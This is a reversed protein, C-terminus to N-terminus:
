DFQKGWVNFVHFHLQSHNEDDGSLHDFRYEWNGGLEKTLFQEFKDLFDETGNVKGQAKDHLAERQEETAAPVEPVCTKREKDEWDISVAFVIVDKLIKKFSLEKGNHWDGTLVTAEAYHIKLLETAGEENLGEGETSYLYEVDLLPSHGIYLLEGTYPVWVPVEEGAWLDERLQMPHNNIPKNM